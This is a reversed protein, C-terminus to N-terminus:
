GGQNGVEVIMNRMIRDFEADKDRALEAAAVAKFVAQRSIGVVHGVAAKSMGVGEVVIYIAAGRIRSSRLWKEDNTNESSFDTDFVTQPDIDMEQCVRVIMLRVMQELLSRPARPKEGNAFRKLTHAISRITTVRTAVKGRLALQYTRPKIGAMLCLKSISIGLEKRKADLRKMGGAALDAKITSAKATSM